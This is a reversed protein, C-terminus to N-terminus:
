PGETRAVRALFLDIDEYPLHAGEFASPCLKHRIHLYLSPKASSVIWDHHSGEWPSLTKIVEVDLPLSGLLRIQDMHIRLAEEGM